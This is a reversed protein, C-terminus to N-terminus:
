DGAMRNATSQRSSIGASVAWVGCGIVVLLLVPILFLGFSQCINSLRAATQESVSLARGDDAWLALTKPFIYVLHVVGALALVGLLAVVGAFSTQCTRM